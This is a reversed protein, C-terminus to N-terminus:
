EDLNHDDLLLRLQLAKTTSTIKSSLHHCTMFTRSPGSCSSSAAPKTLCLLMKKRLSVLVLFSLLAPPIPIHHLHPRPHIYLHEAMATIKLSQKAQHNM